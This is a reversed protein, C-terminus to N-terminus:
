VNVYRGRLFSCMPPVVLDMMALVFMFPLTRPFICLELPLGNWTSPGFVSFAINTKPTLPHIWLFIQPDPNRSIGSINPM